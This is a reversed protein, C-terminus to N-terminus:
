SRIRKWSTFWLNVMHYDTENITKDATLYWTEFCGNDIKDRIRQNGALDNEHMVQNICAKSQNGAENADHVNIDTSTEDLQYKWYDAEVYKNTSAESKNAASGETPLLESAATVNVSKVDKVAGLALSNYLLGETDGSVNTTADLVSTSLMSKGKLSVNNSIKFGDM